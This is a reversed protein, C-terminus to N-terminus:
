RARSVTRSRRRPRAPPRRPRPTHPRPPPSPRHFTSAHHARMSQRHPARAFTLSTSRPPLIYRPPRARQNYRRPALRARPRFLRRGNEVRLRPTNGFSRGVHAMRARASASGTTLWSPIRWALPDSTLVPPRSHTPATRASDARADAPARRARELLRARRDCQKRTPPCADFKLSALLRAIADCLM